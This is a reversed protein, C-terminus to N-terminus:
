RIVEDARLLISQPIAVGIAKATKLNVILRFKSAQEVPLEAVKAGKLLRDIFYAGREYNKMTNSGYFLLCGAQASTPLETMTPLGGTRALEAIRGENMYFMPSRTMMVAGARGRKAASFASELEQPGSVQIPQLQIGLGNAARQVQELQGRGFNADWLVAVRALGPLAERLIELRKAFLASDVSYLGTVNTGPRSYSQIWGTTVPDDTYGLMVIPITSTAKRVARLAVDNVIVIIDSPLRVLEDALAPVRDLQGLATRVELKINRGDEYGYQRLGTRVAEVVPDTVPPHTILMGVVPVRGAQEAFAWLPSGLGAALAALL